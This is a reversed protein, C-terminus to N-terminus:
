DRKYSLNPFYRGDRDFAGVINRPPINEGYNIEWPLPHARAAGLKAQEIANGGQRQYQPVHQKFHCNRYLDFGEIKRADILYAYGEKAYVSAGAGDRRFFPSASIGKGDADLANRAGQFGGRFGNVEDISRIGSRLEFGSKFIEDTSRTDGRFVFGKYTFGKDLGVFISSPNKGVLIQAEALKFDATRAKELLKGRILSRVGAAPRLAGKSATSFIGKGRKAAKAWPFVAALDVLVGVHDPRTLGAEFASEVLAQATAAVLREAVCRGVDNITRATQLHEIAFKDTTKPSTAKGFSSINDIDSVPRGFFRRVPALAHTATKPMPQISLELDRFSIALMHERRGDGVEVIYGYKAYERIKSTYGFGSHDVHSKVIQSITANGSELGFGGATFYNVIVSSLEEVQKQLAVSAKKAFIGNVEPWYNFKDRLKGNAFYGYGEFLVDGNMLIDRAKMKRTTITLVDEGVPLDRQEVWEPYSVSHAEDPDDGKELALERAVLSRTPIDSAVYAMSKPMAFRAKRVRDAQWLGNPRSGSVPATVAPVSLQKDGEMHQGVGVSHALVALLDSEPGPLLAAEFAARQPRCHLAKLYEPEVVFKLFLQSLLAPEAPVVRPTTFNNAPGPSCSAQLLPFRGIQDFIRHHSSPSVPGRVSAPKREARDHVNNNFQQARRSAELDIPM